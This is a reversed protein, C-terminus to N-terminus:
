ELTRDLSGAASTLVPATTDQVTITQAFNASTNGCGDSFNWTRVRVYANACTADPTSVDSVVNLTASGTCNDTAAPVLALAAAIGASDSCELTRDLSGVASTLVPATTDQVTITQAFNASTNGCGDSFNWTRVRVYANACTTDPTNVDSVVHITASGTCNDTAAPVLALAAAIGASDSCELTRDLSGAASTLVPATTDQVTITQVFKASSNGGGDSFNWTRVRVYANACTTDLTNVDSVVNLTASGTCNDTAAPVLALATAIGASDSCELTRDM